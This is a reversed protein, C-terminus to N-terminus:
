TQVKEHNLRKKKLKTALKAFGLKLLRCGWFKVVVGSNYIKIPPPIPTNFEQPHPHKNFTNTLSNKFFSDFIQFTTFFIFPFFHKQKNQLKCDYILIRYKKTDSLFSGQFQRM